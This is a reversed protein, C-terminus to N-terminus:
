RAGASIAAAGSEKGCIWGSSLLIAVSCDHNRRTGDVHASLGFRSSSESDGYTERRDALGAKGSHRFIRLVSVSHLRLPLDGGGPPLNRSYSVGLRRHRRYARRCIQQDWFDAHISGCWCVGGGRQGLGCSLGHGNRFLYAPVRIGRSDSRITRERDGRGDARM